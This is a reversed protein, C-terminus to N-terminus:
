PQKGFTDRPAGHQEGQFLVVRFQGRDEGSPVRTGGRVAHMVVARVRVDVSAASNVLSGARVMRICWQRYSSFWHCQELLNPSALRCVDSVCSLQKCASPPIFVVRRFIRACVNWECGGQSADVGATSKTTRCKPGERGKKGNRSREWSRRCSKWRTPLISHCM